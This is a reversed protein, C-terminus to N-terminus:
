RKSQLALKKGPILYIHRQELVIFCPLLNSWFINKDELKPMQFNPTIFKDNKEETESTQSGHNKRKFKVEKLVDKIKGAVFM